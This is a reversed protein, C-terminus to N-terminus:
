QFKSHKHKCQIHMLSRFRLDVFLNFMPCIMINLEFYMKIKSKFLPGLFIGHSFPVFFITATKPWWRIESWWQDDTLSNLLSLKFPRLLDDLLISVNLASIDGNCSSMYAMYSSMSGPTRLRDADRLSRQPRCLRGCHTFQFIFCQICDRFNLDFLQNLFMKNWATAYELM